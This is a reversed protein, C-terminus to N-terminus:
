RIGAADIRATEAALVDKAWQPADAGRAVVLVVAAHIEGGLNAKVIKQARTPTPDHAAIVDVARAHDERAATESSFDVLGCPCGIKGCSTPRDVTVASRVSVVRVGAVNLEMDLKTANAM